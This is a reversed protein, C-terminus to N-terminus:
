RRLWSTLHGNSIKCNARRALSPPFRKGRKLTPSIEMKSEQSRGLPQLAASNMVSTKSPLLRTSPHRMHSGATHRRNYLGPTQGPWRSRKDTVRRIWSSSVDQDTPPEPPCCNKGPFGPAHPTSDDPKRPAARGPPRSRRNGSKHGVVLCSGGIRPRCRSTRPRGCPLLTSCFLIFADKM